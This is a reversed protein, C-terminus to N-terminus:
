ELRGAPRGSVEGLGEVSTLPTHGRALLWVMAALAAVQLPWGMAVKAGGLAGLAWAVDNSAVLYLPYQVAVRLVCPVVLLWTLRSSLQVVAPNHRWRHQVDQTVAGILLGVAPWRVLISVVLVAAYVANYIIGPLFADEAQGSRAAFLAAIAIGILSNIVYQVQSRQLLRVVVLLLAAGIGLGLAWELAPDDLLGFERLGPRDQLVLYTITFLVTPIATEVMGRKGGLAKALERRVASEVTQESVVGRVHDEPPSDGSTHDQAADPDTRPHDAGPEGEPGPTSQSKSM